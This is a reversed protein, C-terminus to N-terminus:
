GGLLDKIGKYDTVPVIEVNNNNVAGEAFSQALRATNGNKRMSGILIVINSMANGVKMTKNWPM